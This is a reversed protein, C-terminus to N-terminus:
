KRDKLDCKKCYDYRETFGIYEVWEHNCKTQKKWYTYGNLYFDYSVEHENMFKDFEVRTMDMLAKSSIFNKEEKGSLNEKPSKM